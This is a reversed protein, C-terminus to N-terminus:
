SQIPQVSTTDKLFFIRFFIYDPILVLVLSGTDRTFWEAYGQAPVLLKVLQGTFTWVIIFALFFIAIALFGERLRAEQWRKTFAYLAAM